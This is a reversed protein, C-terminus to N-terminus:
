HAEAQASSVYQATLVTFIYAQLFGVFLELAFIAFSMILAVVGAANIALNKVQSLMFWGGTVFIVVLLHGALMNAFLRLALTIPRTIFNSLIELPLVLILLAKPVGDPITQLKLYRRLGHTKIGVANYLVWTLLALAWAFGVKSFTPFMFVFTEGFLNNIVIFSFLAVLWPVYKHYNDGIIDRGIGNRLMNYLFEGAWQRRTPVIKPRHTVILWFLIVLAAAIVAQAIHNTLWIDTWPMKAPCAGAGVEHCALWTQSPFLPRSEFISIDFVPVESDLLTLGATGNAM